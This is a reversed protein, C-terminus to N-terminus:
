PTMQLTSALGSLEIVRRLITSPNALEVQETRAAVSLLLALGSSDIFRLESMEFVVRRPAPGSGADIRARIADVSSLDIEGSLRITLTGTRDVVESVSSAARADADDGPRDRGVDVM